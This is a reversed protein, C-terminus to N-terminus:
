LNILSFVYNSIKLENNTDYTLVLSETYKKIEGDNISITGYTSILINNHALPQPHAIMQSHKFTTINHQKLIQQLNNFGKIENDDFTIYANPHFLLHLDNFLIDFLYYFKYCFDETILKLNTNTKIPHHNWNFYIM